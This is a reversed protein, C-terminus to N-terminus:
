NDKEIYDFQQRYATENNCVDVIPPALLDMVVKGLENSVDQIACKLDCLENGEVDCFRCNCLLAFNARLSCLMVYFPESCKLDRDNFNQRNIFYRLSLNINRLIEWNPSDIVNYYKDYKNLYVNTAKKLNKMVDVVKILKPQSLIFAKSLTPSYAHDEDCDSIPLVVNFGKFYQYQSYQSDSYYAIGRIDYEKGNERLWNTLLHPIYYEEPDTTSKGKNNIYSCAIILPLQAFYGLLIEEQKQSANILSANSFIKLDIEKPPLLFLIKWGITEKTQWFKSVYFEIPMGMELWCVNISTALYLSLEGDFNFRGAKVKDCCNYPPHFLDRRLGYMNERNYAVRYLGDTMFCNKGLDFVFKKTSSIGHFFIEKAMDENKIKHQQLCSSLYNDTAYDKGLIKHFANYFQPSLRRDDLESLVKKFCAINCELSDLISEEATRLIPLNLKSIADGLNM